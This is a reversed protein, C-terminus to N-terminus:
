VLQLLLGSLSRTFHGAAFTSPVLARLDQQILGLLRFDNTDSGFTFNNLRDVVLRKWSLGQIQQSCGIHTLRCAQQHKPAQLNAPSAPNAPCPRPRAPRCKKSGPLLQLSFEQWSSARCHQRQIMVSSGNQLIRRAQILIYGKGVQASLNSMPLPTRVHLNLLFSSFSALYVQVAQVM